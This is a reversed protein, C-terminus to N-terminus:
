ARVGRGAGRRHGGCAGRARHGGVVGAAGAQGVASVRPRELSPRARGAEVLAYGVQPLGAQAMLEKFVVKDMCVASAMVGSGVYPVDLLELLGQVTGDEGFPGHLVPFVVDADLLGRGPHLALEEGTTGGRATARWSSPWWRTARTACGRASRRPASWRSTTSQRAAAASSAVRVAHDGHQGADRASPTTTTRTWTADFQGVNITVTTGKKAKGGSPTRASSM